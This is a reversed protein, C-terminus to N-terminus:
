GFFFLMPILAIVTGALGTVLAAVTMGNSRSEVYIVQRQQVENQPPITTV